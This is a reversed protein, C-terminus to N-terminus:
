PFRRVRRSRRWGAEGRYRPAARRLALERGRLPCDACGCGARPLPAWGTSGVLRIRTGLERTLHGTRQARWGSAHEMRPAVPGSRFTALHHRLQSFYMSAVPRRANMRWTVTHRLTATATGCPLHVGVQAPTQKHFLMSNSKSRNGSPISDPNGLPVSFHLRPSRNPKQSADHGLRIRHIQTHTHNFRDVLSGRPLLRRFAEIDADTRRNAPM